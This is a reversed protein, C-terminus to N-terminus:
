EVIKPVLFYIENAEPANGLVKDLPLSPSAIDERLTIQQTYPYHTPEAGDIDSENLFAAQRLISELQKELGKEEGPSLNIRADEAAKRIEEGLGKLKM